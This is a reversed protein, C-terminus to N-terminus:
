SPVSERSTMGIVRQDEPSKTGAVWWWAHAEGEYRATGPLATAAALALTAHIQAAAHAPAATEANSEAVEALLREAERYHEPGTM